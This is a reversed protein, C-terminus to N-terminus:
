TLAFCPTVPRIRAIAMSSAGCLMRTLETWGVVTSVGM